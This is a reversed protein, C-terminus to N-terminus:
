LDFTTFLDGKQFLSPVLNLSEYKFKHEPLFQNVYRLDVVLRPKGKANYVVSLPSSVIPCTSCEIVCRGAVLEDIIASAIFVSNELASKHNALCMPEPLKIFPLQYGKTVIGEVFSSPGLETLWFDSHDNLRGQVCLCPQGLALPSNLSSNDVSVLEPSEWEYSNVSLCTEALTELCM